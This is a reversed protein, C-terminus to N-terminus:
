AREQTPVREANEALDQPSPDDPGSLRRAGAFFALVLLILGLWVLAITTAIM